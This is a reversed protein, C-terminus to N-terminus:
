AMVMLGQTGVEEKGFKSLTPIETAIEKLITPSHFLGKRGSLEMLIRGDARAEGPPRVAVRYSQALGKHNIVTGQREAFSASALVYDALDSLPTQMLDQVILLKLGEFARVVGSPIESPPYGGVYYAGDFAGSALSKLVVDFPIVEGQFRKLVAEVGLRNPCKEARITFKVNDATPAEGRPGKPYLDDEGVIPVEGMALTIHKSLGRLYDCLLYAEECTMFPSLIAVFRRGDQKAMSAIASRVEGLIGGGAAGGGAVGGWADQFDADSQPLVRSESRSLSSGEAHLGVATAAAVALRGARPATLRGEGQLHKWGFRGEDCMFSGQAQPNERPRIRYLKDENQDVIISCGTSCGTCVSDAHKLWWVRKKYLFDKSCLAGVPCIDVVNGALKNNCPHGPRVDIEEVSGRNIVHLEATGSIERTFRVCRTCMVCRDTFLAIQDGIHYKDLRQVKPENLRSHARGFKYTYDQLYCEGAQDCISCDLPHNLLLYELTQERSAKVKDTNTRVVTGPKAPTQCAPVLKPLMAVSGDPKKEGVEVLCMRCSAVVSLDHHWCYYPVEVGAERAAQILNSKPDVDIEKDDIFVSGLASAGIENDL